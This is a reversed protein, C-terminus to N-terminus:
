HRKPFQNVKEEDFAFNIFRKNQVIEFFGGITKQKAKKKTISFTGHSYYDAILELETRFALM